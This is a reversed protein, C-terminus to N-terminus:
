RHKADRLAGVTYSTAGQFMENEVTSELGESVQKLM